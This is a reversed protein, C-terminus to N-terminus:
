KGNRRDRYARNRANNSYEHGSPCHTKSLSHKAGNMVGVGRLINVRRTVPDLHSPELCSRVRCLHDLDLGKPVKGNIFEWHWRHVFVTRRDIGRSGIRLVGYGGKSLRGTWVLCGDIRKTSKMVRDIVPEAARGVKVIGNHHGFIFRHPQGKIYGKKKSTKKALPAIAGCGCECLKM